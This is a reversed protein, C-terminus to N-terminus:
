PDIPHPAPSQLHHAPTSQGAMKEFPSTDGRQRKEIIDAVVQFALGIHQGHIFGCKSTPSFCPMGVRDSRHGVKSKLQQPSARKVRFIPVSMSICGETGLKLVLKMIHKVVAMRNQWHSAVHHLPIVIERGDFEYQSKEIRELSDRLLETTDHSTGSMATM